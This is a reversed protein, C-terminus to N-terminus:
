VAGPALGNRALIAPRHRVAAEFEARLAQEERLHRTSFHLPTARSVGARRAIEGAQRATLHHTVKARFPERDLFAAEIFLREAGRALGLVADINAPTFGFDTAYVIRQGPGTALAGAEALARPWVTRGEVEISLDLDGRRLAAKAGSLWPGVPLGLQALAVKNVNIRASEQFAFALCPIGHDLVAGEISFDGEQLLLRGHLDPLPEDTRRFAQRAEFRAGALFGREWDFARLVFPASHTGLLNWRYARLKSEVGDILGPPGFLTVTQPQYLKLRLLRDFGSFHDMHLHSVFVESVRVIERPSLADIEGLDFLLARAGFRFDILAGPDGFPDNVLRAEAFRAM